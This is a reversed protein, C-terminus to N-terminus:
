ADGERTRTVRARARTAPVIRSGVPKSEDIVIFRQQGQPPDAADLLSSPDNKSSSWRKIVFPKPCIVQRRQSVGSKSIHSDGDM